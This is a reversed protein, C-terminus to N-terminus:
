KSEWTVGAWWKFWSLYVDIIYAKGKYTDWAVCITPLLHWTEQTGKILRM